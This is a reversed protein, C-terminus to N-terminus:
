GPNHTFWVGVRVGVRERPSPSPTEIWGSDAKTMPREGPRTCGAALIVKVIDGPM